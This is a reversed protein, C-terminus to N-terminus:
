ARDLFEEREGALTRAIAAALVPHDDLSPDATVVARADTRAREIVRRDQVVRLLKLSNTRGSQAAGLVDGERRDRLDVEALEFGDTTAALAALRKGTPTEPDAHTLLLCVAPDSGRGVRGRLQHLQSLGFRDADLVAMVTAEPVDVGVEIVTTTVLVPVKGSSFDAMAADKVDPTLRGHLMGIEVGALAPEGRLQAVVDEVAAISHRSEPGSEDDALHDVVDAPETLTDSIRPCVVFARHGGAVEEAIRSWTRAVWAANDAPVVHTSVGARGAPIETLTSSELDGFITMAVTRPIPTATMVLLHPSTRGKARLADRQEVGFRHQEDVVVLGLDAFQVHEQILAHTGVVIGAAGSAAEALAQRRQAASQSGTLLAVRTAGDAGTLMGGEALPGLMAAITRAHQAALVETPALLAAQGGADVVQLMARLAVVTKGSGVEGQLLRQMPVSAALEDALVVGVDRQGDTLTFPLRADFAALLGVAAAPRATAPEAAAEARRRALAAQLVFAEEYRLAAQARYAEEMTVPVHVQQLAAFRGLLQQARRVEDPVPDPVDERRLPDLVTRIAAQIKLSDIAASAPYIPIPKSADVLAEAEDDPDEIARYSPHALQLKGQYRNVTGTFLATAGVPLQSEITHAMGAYPAFFVLSMRSVGDTIVGEVIMGKGRNRRRVGVSSVQAVITVHEGLTLESMTTLRGPEAYRRPYHSLLDGVTELGLKGLAGATRTGLARKLPEDLASM